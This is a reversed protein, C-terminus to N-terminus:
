TRQHRSGLTIQNREFVHDLLLLLIIQIARLPFLPFYDFLKILIQAADYIKVSSRIVQGDRQSTKRFLVLGSEGMRGPPNGLFLSIKQDLASLETPVVFIWRDRVSVLMVRAVSKERKLDVNLPRVFDRIRRLSLVTEASNGFFISLM